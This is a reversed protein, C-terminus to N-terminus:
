GIPRDQVNGLGRNGLADIEDFFVVVGGYNRSLNRLKRFLLKVKMQPVGVFMASAFDPPVLVFPKGTEGAFAEAIMTKGTGPPGWLLLGGPIYGGHAEVTDPDDLIQLVEKALGVAIDQGYIDSFRTKIQGPM